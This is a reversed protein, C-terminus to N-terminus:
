YEAALKCWDALTLEFPVFMTDVVSVHFCSNIDLMNAPDKSNTLVGWMMSDRM